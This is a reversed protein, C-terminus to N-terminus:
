CREEKKGLDLKAKIGQERAYQGVEFGKMLGMILGKKFCEGEKENWGVKEFHEDFSYLWEKISDTLEKREM